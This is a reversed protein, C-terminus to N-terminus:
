VGNFDKHFHDYFSASAPLFFFFFLQCPFLLIAFIRICHGLFYRFLKIFVHVVGFLIYLDKFYLANQFKTTHLQNMKWKWLHQLRCLSVERKSFIVFDLLNIAFTALFLESFLMQFSAATVTRRWYLDSSNYKISCFSNWVTFVRALGWWSFCVVWVYVVKNRKQWKLTVYSFSFMKQQHSANLVKFSKVSCECSRLLFFFADKKLSARFVSLLVHSLVHFTFDWNHQYMLEM